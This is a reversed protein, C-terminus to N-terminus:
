SGPMRAAPVCAFHPGTVGEGVCDVTAFTGGVIAVEGVKQERKVKRDWCWRLYVADAVGRIIRESSGGGVAAVM